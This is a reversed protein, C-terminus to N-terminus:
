PVRFADFVHTYGATVGVGPDRSTLGVLVAADLRGAGIAYRFGARAQGATETGPPPDARATHVRGNVEGVVALADTVGRVLSVGYELVDNQRDGRTPDGLIGLGLNGAVRLGGIHKAGLVAVSFDTTDLGLGNENSTTPLRTAFRVGLAPRAAAEALVRVKTAVVVSGAGSTSDGAVDLMGSLPADFRDRISLRERLSAQIQLEAINSLGVTVGVMPARVLNGVLGSAPYTVDTGSEVGAEVLLRGAGVGEPDQTILPRQQAVAVGPAAVLAALLCALRATRGARASSRAGVLEFTM